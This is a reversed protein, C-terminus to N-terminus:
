SVSRENQYRDMMRNIRKHITALRNKTVGAAECLAEGRLGDFGGLLVLQTEECGNCEDLLFSQFAEERESQLLVEEPSKQDPEVYKVSLLDYGAHTTELMKAEERRKRRERRNSALSRMTGAMFTLLDLDRSCHRRKQPDDEFIKLMAEQLLDEPEMDGSAGAYKKAIMRLRHKDVPALAELEEHLEEPEKYEAPEIVSM